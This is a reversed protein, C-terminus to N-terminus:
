AALNTMLQEILASQEDNEPLARSPQRQPQLPDECALRRRVLEDGVWGEPGLDKRAGNWLFM